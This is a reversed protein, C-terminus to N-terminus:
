LWSFFWVWQIYKFEAIGFFAKFDILMCFWVIIWLLVLSYYISVGGFDSRYHSELFKAQWDAVTHTIMASITDTLFRHPDKNFSLVKEFSGQFTVNKMQSIVRVVSEWITFIGIETWWDSSWSQLCLVSPVWLASLSAAEAVLPPWPANFKSSCTMKIQWIM